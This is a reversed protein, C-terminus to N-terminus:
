SGVVRKSICQDSAYGVHRTHPGGMAAGGLPTGRWTRRSRHGVSAVFSTWGTPAAADAGNLKSQGDTVQFIRGPVSAWRGSSRTPKAAEARTIRDHTWVQHGPADDNPPTGTVAPDQYSHHFVAARPQWRNSALQREIGPRHVLHRRRRLRRTAPTLGPQGSSGHRLLETDDRRGEFHHHQGCQRDPTHEFRSLAQRATPSRRWSRPLM